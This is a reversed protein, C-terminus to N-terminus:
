REMRLWTKIRHSIIMGIMQLGIIFAKSKNGTAMSQGVRRQYNVPIQVVRLQHQLALLIMQPGFYSGGVTFQGQITHLAARHILRMTCGVDTLNTTNYLIELMKAVAWNGWRLFWGMNADKWIFGKATRSGLVLDADDAYALLKIIDTGRFTGDPESLIVYDGTAERLGCRCAFGYGQCPEHIERASTQAVEASTGVAANNNVVIIEDVYGSSELEQISHRISDKENYTPLIVSVTHGKWM